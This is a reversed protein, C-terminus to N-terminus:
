PPQAHSRAGSSNVALGKQNIPIPDSATAAANRALGIPAVAQPHPNIREPPANNKDDSGFLHSLRARNIPAHPIEARGKESVAVPQFLLAGPKQSEQSANGKRIKACAMSM